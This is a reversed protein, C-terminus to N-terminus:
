NGKRARGNVSELYGDLFASRVYPIAILKLLNEDSFDFDPGNKDGMKIGEWGSVVEELIEVADDMIEGKQRAVACRDAIASVREPPLVRYQVKVERAVKRGDETPEHIRVPTKFSNEEKFVFM